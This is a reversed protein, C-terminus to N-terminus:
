SIAIPTYLLIYYRAAGLEISILPLCAFVLVFLITPPFFLFVPAFVRSIHLYTSLILPVEVLPGEM